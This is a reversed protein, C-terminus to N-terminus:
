LAYGGDVLISQGTIYGNDILHLCCSSIEGITGFRGLSIKEEIRRRHKPDKGAHWETDTFGPAVVNVTIKRPSFVPVLYKVLTQLSGKSVGYPISIAHPAKGLVSGIFIIRGDDRITKELGQLMFFPISLNGNIITVWDEVSLDRFATRKTFGANLVVYDISSTVRKLESLFIHMGDFSSLDAKVIIFDRSFGSFERRTEEAADDDAAYNLIIFHGRRLLDFAIRKGIGRTSGTVVATKKM